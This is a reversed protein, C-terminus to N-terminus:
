EVGLLKVRLEWNEDIIDPSHTAIVVSVDNISTVAKLDGIFKNQWSIHLSLEPEDILIMDGPSSKFILEYFLILENQEGSSLKKPSITELQGAGDRKIKSKFLFGDKKNVELTKHKFRSNVIDLFLQIQGSIDDYPALKKHSDEIYLKLAGVLELQGGSIQLLDSDQTSEILGLSSLRKRQADLKSLSDNLEEFPENTNSRLKKVLRNPYTSDLETSIASATKDISYIRETLEKSSKLVTNIYSDGGREKATILRQTEILKVKVLALAEVFWKPLNIDASDLLFERRMMEQAYHEREFERWRSDGTQGREMMEAEFRLMQHRRIAEMERSSRSRRSNENSSMEAIKIPKSKSDKTSFIRNLM